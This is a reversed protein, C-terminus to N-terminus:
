EIHTTKLSFIIHLTRFTPISVQYEFKTKQADNVDQTTVVSVFTLSLLLLSFLTRMSSQVLLSPAQRLLPLHFHPKLVNAVPAQRPRTKLGTQWTKRDTANRRKGTEAM